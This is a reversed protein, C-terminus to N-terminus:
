SATSGCKSRTPTSPIARRTPKASVWFLFDQTDMVDTYGDLNTVISPPFAGVEPTNEDAKEAEYRISYRVYAINEGNEKLYLTIINTENLMLATEYNSETVGSLVKGNAPTSSNNLVVKVSLDSGEGAPYAYFRLIGDPLETRSIQMTHLDTVIRPSNDNGGGLGEGGAGDGSGNEGAPGSGETETDSNGGSGDGELTGGVSDNEGTEPPAEDPPLSPDPTGEPVIEPTASPEPTADPTEEPPKTPDPEDQPPPTPLPEEPEDPPLTTEVTEEPPKTAEPEGDDKGMLMGGGDLAEPVLPASLSGIPNEPETFGRSRLAGAFVIIIALVLLISLASLLSDHRRM